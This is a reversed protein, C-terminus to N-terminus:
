GRSLIEVAYMAPFRSSIKEIGPKLNKHKSVLKGNRNFFYIDINFQIQVTHFILVKEESMKFLFATNPSISKYKLLGKAIDEDKKFTVVKEFKSLLSFLDSNEFDLEILYNELIDM